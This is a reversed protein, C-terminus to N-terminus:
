HQPFLYGYRAVHQAQLWLLVHSPTAQPLIRVVENAAVFIENLDCAFPSRLQQALSLTAEALPPEPNVELELDEDLMEIVVVTELYERLAKIMLDAISDGSGLEDVAIAAADRLNMPVNVTVSVAGGKTSMLLRGIAREPELTKSM